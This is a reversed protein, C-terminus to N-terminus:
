SSAELKVKIRAPSEATKGHEDSQIVCTYTADEKNASAPVTLSTSQSNTCSMYDGVHVVYGDTGNTIVGGGDPM